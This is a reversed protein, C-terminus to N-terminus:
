LVDMLYQALKVVFMGVAVIIVIGIGIILMTVPLGFLGLGNLSSTFYDIFGQPIGIFIGVIDSAVSIIDNTFDQIVGDFFNFVPDIVYSVFNGFFIQELSEFHTGSKRLINKEKTVVGSEFKAVDNYATHFANSIDQGLQGFFGFISFVALLFIISELLILGGYRGPCRGM